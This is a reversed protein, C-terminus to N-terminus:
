PNYTFGFNEGVVVLDYIDVVDEGILNYEPNVQDYFIAVTRLDFIDVIGNNDIDGKIPSFTYNVDSGVDIQNLGGRVYGLDAGSPYSLNAWQLFIIGSQNNAWSPLDKWIHHYTANFTITILTVIGGKPSGFTYGTINGSTENIDTTGSGWANWTVNAIDLLTANYHIEFKFDEVDLISSVNISVTFTESYKRCVRSTPSMQLTPKGGTITYTGDSAAHPIPTWESDSLKHTAFHILTQKLGYTQPDEVRFELKFLPISSTTNFSNQTSLAVFKYWGVGNESKVVQWSGTGWVADLFTDYYSSQFTILTNDWTVNFDFGFLDTINQVVISVNFYSGVDSYVKEVLAPSVFLNTSPGVSALMRYLGDTKDTPIPQSQSNGLKVMAFHIPTEGPLADEVRFELKALPTSETSTFGTSTSVAALEYYGTGTQNVAVFWNGSGWINDLTATYETGALTILDANWTINFDFARLDAVDEITVSVNFTSGVDVPHKEVVSPNISIKAALLTEENGITYFTSPSYQNNYETSVWSASRSTNSIRVEDITGNMYPTTYRGIYCPDDTSAIKGTISKPTGTQTGNVYLRIQLGDYVGVLHYWQDPQLVPTDFFNATSTETIVGWGVNGLSSQWLIYSGGTGATWNSWKSVIGSGAVNNPKVWAEITLGGMGKLSANNGSDIHGSSGDFGDAGDIKGTAIQNVGGYVKGDNHNLTSDTDIPPYVIAPRSLANSINQEICMGTWYDSGSGNGLGTYYAWLENNSAAYTDRDITDTLVAPCDFRHDDWASPPGSTIPVGLFERGSPYFTPNIDRYLEIEGYGSVATYHPVIMYYYGGYKFPFSCFRGGSFIPNNADKTWNKLDTSTALGICRGLAPVAGITNYWLYYTSGIKIVGWPDLDQDDWEGTTGRVVPNGEYRTWHVADTSNALGIVYPSSGGILYRYLMYWVGGEKWVMPVGEYNGALMPNNPDATWNTKGNPSTYHLVTGYSTYLHYTGADYFVSAFGSRSDNITPNGEYKYWYQPSPPTEELHQVMVYNSDWVAAPNQQSSAAVNGYYMYLVTDSTSSLSPVKVWAILHGTNNDYYEVEHNLKNVASDVFVIDGGNQQAKLALDSDSIDILVPFDALSAAVKTHDITIMKRHLWNANWWGAADTTQISLTGAFVSFFLLGLVISGYVRKAGIKFLRM